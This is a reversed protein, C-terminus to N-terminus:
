FVIVYNSELPVTCRYNDPGKMIQIRHRRQNYRMQGLITDLINSSLGRKRTRVVRVQVMQFNVSPFRVFVIDIINGRLTPGAIHVGVCDHV